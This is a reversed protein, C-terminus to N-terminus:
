YDNRTLLFALPSFEESWGEALGSCFYQIETVLVCETDFTGRIDSYWDSLLRFIFNFIVRPYEDRARVQKRSFGSLRLGEISMHPFSIAEAIRTVGLYKFSELSFATGTWQLPVLLPTRAACWDASPKGTSYKSHAQTSMEKQFIAHEVLKFDCLHLAGVTM